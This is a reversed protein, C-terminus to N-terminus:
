TKASQIDDGFFRKGDIYYLEHNYRMLENFSRTKINSQLQAARLTRGVIQKDLINSSSAPESRLDVLNHASGRVNAVFSLFALSAIFLINFVSRFLTM